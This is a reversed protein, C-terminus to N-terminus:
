GEPCPPTGMPGRGPSLPEKQFPWCQAELACPIPCAGGAQARPEPLPQLAM